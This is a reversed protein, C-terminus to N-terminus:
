RPCSMKKHRLLNDFRTQKLGCLDCRLQLEQENHSLVHRKFIRKDVLSNCHPCIKHGVSSVRMSQDLYNKVSVEEQVPDAQGDPQTTASRPSASTRASATQKHLSPNSSTNQPSATAFSTSPGPSGVACGGAAGAGPSSPSVLSMFDLSTSTLPASTLPSASASFGRTGMPSSPSALLNTQSSPPSDELRLM